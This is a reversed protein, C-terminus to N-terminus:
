GQGDALVSQGLSEKAPVFTNGENTGVPERGDNICNKLKAVRFRLFTVGQGSTILGQDSSGNGIWANWEM